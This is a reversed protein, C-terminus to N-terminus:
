GAHDAFTRLKTTRLRRAFGPPLKLPPGCVLRAPTLLRLEQRTISVPIPRRKAWACPRFKGARPTGMRFAGSRKRGHIPYRSLMARSVQGAISMIVEDGAGSPRRLVALRSAFPCAETRKRDTRQPNKM